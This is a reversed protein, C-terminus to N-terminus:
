GKKNTFSIRPDVAAYMLDALLMSIMVLIASFMLVTYMVPYNRAMVATFAARGMGNINFIIEIIFSGGILSPLISAFMTIIPILSNRFTHKWTVVNQSLGKAVATRIYDQKMVGLMSGRMQRATYTFSAYLMTVIPLVLHHAEDLFRTMFSADEPLNASNLGYTPFFDMGYEPTTLYVIFMTAVWFGPLSYLIFLFISAVRDFRTGRSRALKVGLPIAILTSLFIAIINMKLTIGVAEWIISKVPRGDLYSNGFDGRFFGYAANTSNSEVWFLDFVNGILNCIMPYTKKMVCKVAEFKTTPRCDPIVSPANGFLWVHYQNKIGYWDLKPIWNKIPTAESKVAQYANKLEELKTKMNALPVITKTTVSDVEVAVERNVADTIKSFIKDIKEDDSEYILKNYNNSFTKLGKYSADERPVKFSELEISKLAKYYAEIQEWNGYQDILASLNEKEKKRTIKYLDKPVSQPTVNFYFSPIDLGLKKKMQNYQKEGAVKDAKQGGGTQGAMGGAMRLEVPDGPAMKSLAFTFLSILFLTPIFYM